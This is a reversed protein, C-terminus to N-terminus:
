AKSASAAKDAHEKATQSSKKNEYDKYKLKNNLLNHLAIISRILASLYVVLHMDNIKVFYSKVLAEINLNPLLNFIDQMNYVVQNNVPLDGKVVADMYAHMEELRSKLGRLGEMKHAVRSALTSVTPDNIDRLLHEVGVEEAEYAEILSDIHKFTRVTEKKDNVEEMSYYAQTPVGQVEPRIDVIVLVPNSCYRRFLVDLQLDNQRIKPGTSYFGVIRESANVKRFMAFMNELFSHDLYWITPDKMDEEFPVAFSNSIDVRGKHTSGLLVGVVRKKTDRAVRNYHDVVSLLVLPHVVACEPELPTPM